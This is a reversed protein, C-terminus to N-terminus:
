RPPVRVVVVAMDDNPQGDVFTRAADQIHGAMEDASLGAAGAVVRELGDDGFFTAGRHRETIGDTYLVLADGPGLEHEEDFVLAPELVGLLNGPRGVPVVSGDARLLYPLPHGGLALTIAAGGPTVRIRTLCVTCFRPDVESLADPTVGLLVENLHALVTAPSEHELAASRVTHRALGTVTAAEVGQGCVDGVVV